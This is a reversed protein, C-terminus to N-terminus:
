KQKEDHHAEFANRIQDAIAQMEEAPFQLKPNSFLM